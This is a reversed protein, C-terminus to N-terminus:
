TTVWELEFNQLRFSEEFFEQNDPLGAKVVLDGGPSRLSTLDLPDGWDYPVFAASSWDYVEVDQLQTFSPRIIASGASVAPIDYHLWFTDAGYAYIEDYYQEITASGEVDLLTPLVPRDRLLSAPLAFEKVFLTSGAAEITRGDVSVATDLSDTFGFFYTGDRLLDRHLAEAQYSLASLVQYTTEYFDPDAFARRQATELVVPEYRTGRSRQAVTLEGTAGTQLEGDRGTVTFGVGDVILGWSWFTYPSDNRVTTSGDDGVTVDVPLPEALEIRAEAAGVGLDELTFTIRGPDDGDRTGAAFGFGQAPAIQWGEPFALVRDGGNAVQMVAAARGTVSGESEVFIAASTVAADAVQARGALWFGAVFLVSLAPVTFWALEPRKLRRLLLFNVPGVLLVFLVIGALLWSLGPVAAERGASAASVLGPGQEFGANRILGPNDIPRLITGWDEVTVASVQSVAVLEGEGFTAVAFATGPWPSAAGADAVAGLDGPAGVIAGGRDVWDVIAEITDGDATDLGDPGVVLYDVIPLGAALGDVPARVIEIDFDVPQPTAARLAAEAADAGVLGVVVSRLPVTVRLQLSELERAEDGSTDFLKLTVLRRDLVPSATIQLTKVGGAPVEISESTTIGGSSVDIRGLLLVESSIEVDVVTDRDPDIFGGVGVSAELSWTKAAQATASTAAVGILIATLTLAVPTLKRTITGGV